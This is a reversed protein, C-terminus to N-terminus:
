SDSSCFATNCRILIRLVCAILCSAERLPVKDLDIHMGGEGASALETTKTDLEELRALRARPTLSKNSMVAEAEDRAAYLESKISEVDM